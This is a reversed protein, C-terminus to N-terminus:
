DLLAPNVLCPEGSFDHNLLAIYLSLKKSTSGRQLIASDCKFGPATQVQGGATKYPIYMINIHNTDQLNNGNLIDEEELYKTLRKKDVFVVPKGFYSCTNGTDSYCNLILPSKFCSLYLSIGQKCYTLMAIAKLLYKKVFHGGLFILLAFRLPVPIALATRIFSDGKSTYFMALIIGGFAFSLAYFGFLVKFFYRRHKYYSMLVMLFSLAIKFIFLNLIGLGSLQFYAYLAGLFAALLGMGYSIKLRFIVGSLYLFYFNILVNDLIFLEIYVTKM